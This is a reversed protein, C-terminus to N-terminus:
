TIPANTWVGNISRGAVFPPRPQDFTYLRGSNSADCFGERWERWDVTGTDFTCAQIHKGHRAANQGHECASTM